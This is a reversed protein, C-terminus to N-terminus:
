PECGAAQSSFHLHIRDSWASYTQQQQQQTHTLKQIQKKSTENQKKKMWKQHASHTFELHSHFFIFHFRLSRIDSAHTLNNEKDWVRETGQRCANVRESHRKRERKWKQKSGTLGM